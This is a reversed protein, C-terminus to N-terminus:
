DGQQFLDIAMAEGPGTGFQYSPYPVNGGGTMSIPSLGSVIGHERDSFLKRTKWNM